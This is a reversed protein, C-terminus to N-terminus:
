RPLVAPDRSCNALLSGTRRALFLVCFAPLAPTCVCVGVGVCCCSAASLDCGSRNAEASLARGPCRPRM